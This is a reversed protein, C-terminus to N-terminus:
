RGGCAIVIRSPPSEAAYHRELAPAVVDGPTLSGREAELLVREALAAPLRVSLVVSDERYGLVQGGTLRSMTM